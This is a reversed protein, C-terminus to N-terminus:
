FDQFINTLHVHHVYYNQLLLTLAQESSLTNCSVTFHPYCGVSAHKKEALKEKYPRVFSKMIVLLCPFHAQVMVTSVTFHRIFAFLSM